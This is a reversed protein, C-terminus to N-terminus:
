SAACTWMGPGTTGTGTRTTTTITMTVAPAIAARASAGAHGTALSRLSHTTRHTMAASCCPAKRPTLLEIQFRLGARM